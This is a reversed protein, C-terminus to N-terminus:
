EKLMEVNWDSCEILLKGGNRMAALRIRQNREGDRIFALSHRIVSIKVGFVKCLKESEAKPLVIVKNKKYM